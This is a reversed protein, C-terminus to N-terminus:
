VHQILFCWNKRDTIETYDIHDVVELDPLAGAWHRCRDHAQQKTWVRAFYNGVTHGTPALTCYVIWM